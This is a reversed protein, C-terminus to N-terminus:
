FGGPFITPLGNKCHKYARNADEIMQSAQWDDPINAQIWMVSNFWRKDCPGDPPIPLPQPFPKVNDPPDNPEPQADACSDCGKPAEGNQDIDAASALSMVFAIPGAFKGLVPIKSVCKQWFPPKKIFGSTDKLGTMDSYLIPNAVAYQYEFAPQDLPDAQTYRGWGSGYWRFINNGNTPRTKRELKSVRRANSTSRWTSSGSALKSSVATATATM